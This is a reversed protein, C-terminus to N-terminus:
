CSQPAVVMHSLPLFAQFTGGDELSVVPSNPHPVSELEIERNTGM